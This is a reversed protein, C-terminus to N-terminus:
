ETVKQYEITVTYGDNYSWSGITFGYLISTNDFWAKVIFMGDVGINYDCRFYELATNKSVDLSTLQNYCCELMDLATNKSVDLSALQNNDCYFTKLATNMSVDLSTFQNKTCNLTELATNYSMVLSTLQNYSCHLKKLATNMSVDLSTLQNYNCNLYELATNKSVDLSALQNSRCAIYELATNKSMDLSTLQNRSCYLTELARFYEIGQLSTLNCNSVDINTINVIDEAFINNADPIYGKDELVKAFEPNFYYALNDSNNFEWSYAKGAEINKKDLNDTYENSDSDIVTVKLSAQGRCDVPPLMFYVVKKEDETGALNELNIEISSVLESSNLAFTEATLDFSGRVPFINESATIVLRTFTATTPYTIEMRALAGIHHFAFNVSGYAPTSASTYMYDYAGFNVVGNNDEYVANQGIYTYPIRNKFNESECYKWNYPYYAYYAAGNKLAWGGGDFTASSAGAGDTMPFSIQTGKNPFIGVVDDASWQFAISAPNSVNAASRTQADDEYIFNDAVCTIYSVDDLNQVDLENSCSSLLLFAIGLLSQLKVKM